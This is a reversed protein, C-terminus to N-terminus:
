QKFSRLYPTFFHQSQPTLVLVLNYYRLFPVIALPIGLSLPEPPNGSDEEKKSIVWLFM